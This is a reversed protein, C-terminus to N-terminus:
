GQERALAALKAQEEPSLARLLATLYARREPRSAWEVWDRAEDRLAGFAPVPAGRRTQRWAYEAAIRAEGDPLADFFALFISRADQGAASSRLLYIVAAEIEEPSQLRDAADRHWQMREDRARRERAAVRDPHDRALKGFPPQQTVLIPDDNEVSM